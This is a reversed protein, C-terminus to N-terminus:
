RCILVPLRSHHLVRDVTSGLIIEKYLPANYGGMIILDNHLEEAIRLIIQSPSGKEAILHAQIEQAQLYEQVHHLLTRARQDDESITVVVLPIHWKGALYAALFLAEEGKPSGDYALLANNLPTVNGPVALIPPLCRRILIRFGSLLRTFPKLPPPYTLNIVVLDAWRAHNCIQRAIPGKVLSLNGPTNAQQCRRKFEDEIHQIKSPDGERPRTLVHLGHLRSVERQAILIAQDLVVWDEEKGSIPILIDRFLGFAEHSEVQERRWEGPPPGPELEDPILTDLAKEWLRSLLRDIRRSYRLALHQAAEETPVEWGIEKELAARHEALWLYLDAETRNPFDRLLGQRRIVQVVPLYVTDYWHTVAEEEPIYRKQELGMFYRHVQIHEEFIPYQGPVTVTLDAAPRLQDLHTRELFDAYEAKIILDDPQTDPTLPVKSKFETVYAQIHTAGLQRAVSVRHNGDLVFYVEGIQYVEIPDYGGTTEMTARVRAWRTPDASQRPLFDRTFDHYRGVSGVIADIPIDKLTREASSHAKLKKRVEEFSLLNESKGTLLSFIERLAARRRARQFDEIARTRSGPIFDVM